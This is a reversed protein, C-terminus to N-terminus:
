VPRISSRAGCAECVLFYLRKEKVIKTDPRKCIPCIVFDEAYRKILRELSEHRFKGQFIARAGNVTGATAMEKSLFKLLHRPDRNLTDCVEKFNYLITRAGAITSRPKPIEFRKKEFVEPPLQSYVRKLMEEYSMKTEGFGM